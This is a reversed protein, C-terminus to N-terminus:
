FGNADGSARSCCRAWYTPQMTHKAVSLVWNAEMRGTKECTSFPVKRFRLGIQKQLVCLSRRNGCCRATTSSVLAHWWGYAFLRAGSGQRCLGCELKSPLLPAFVLSTRSVFCPWWNSGSWNCFGSMCRISTCENLVITKRTAPLRLSSKLHHIRENRHEQWLFIITPWACAFDSM